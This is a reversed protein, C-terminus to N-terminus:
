IFRLNNVAIRPHTDNEEFGTMGGRGMIPIEYKEQRAIEIIFIVGLNFFIQKWFIELQKLPFFIFHLFILDLM